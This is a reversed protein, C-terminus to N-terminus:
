APLDDYRKQQRRDVFYAGAAFLAFIFILAGIAGWRYWAGDLLLLVAAIGIGIVVIAGLIKGMGM